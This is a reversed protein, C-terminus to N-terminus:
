AFVFLFQLILVIAATPVGWPLPPTAIILILPSSAKETASLIAEKSVGCLEALKGAYLEKSLDDNLTALVSIAKKLYEIKGDRTTM